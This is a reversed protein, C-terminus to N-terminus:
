QNNLIALFGPNDNQFAITHTAISLFNTLATALILGYQSLSYSFTLVPTDFIWKAGGILFVSSVAITVGVYFLQLAFSVDSLKRSFVNVAGLSTGALIAFTCGLTADRMSLTAEDESDGRASLYIMVTGIFSVILAIYELLGLNVGLIICAILITWFPALRQLVITLAVPILKLAAMVFIIALTGSVSRVFVLMKKGEGIKLSTDTVLAIVASFVLCGLGRALVVDFLQVGKEEMIYKSLAGYIVYTVASIAIMIVAKPRNVHKEEGEQKNFNDDDDDCEIQIRTLPASSM